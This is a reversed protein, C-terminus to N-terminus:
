ERFNHSRKPINAMQKFQDCVLESVQELPTTGNIKQNALASYLRHRENFLNALSAHDLKALLPRDPLSKLRPWLDVFKWELYVVWSSKLRAKLKLLAPAAGGGAALVIKKQGIFQDIKKQEIQRFFAEGKNQFIEFISLGLSKSIEEDTDIFGFGLKEAIIKGLSTKGAGMFGIIIINKLM